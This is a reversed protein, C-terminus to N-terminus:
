EEDCSRGKMLAKLVYSTLRQCPCWRKQGAERWEEISTEWRADALYTRVLNAGILQGEEDLQYNPTNPQYAMFGGLPDPSVCPHM